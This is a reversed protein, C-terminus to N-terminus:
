RSGRGAKVSAIAEAMEENMKKTLRHDSVFVDSRKLDAKLAAAIDDDSRGVQAAVFDAAYKGAEAGKLGKMEAIWLAVAKNRRAVARFRLDEDHAFEKEFRNEREQFVDSM